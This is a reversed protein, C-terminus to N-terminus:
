TFFEIYRLIVLISSILHVRQVGFYYIAKQPLNNSFIQSGHHPLASLMLANYTFFGLISSKQVGYESFRKIYPSRRCLFLFTRYGMTDHVVALRAPDALKSSLQRLNNERLFIAQLVSVDEM